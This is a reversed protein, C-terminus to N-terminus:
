FMIEVTSIKSEVHSPRTLDNPLIRTPLASLSLETEKRVKFMAKSFLTDQYFGKAIIEHLCAKHFHYCFLIELTKHFNM